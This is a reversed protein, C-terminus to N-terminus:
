CKSKSWSHAKSAFREIM